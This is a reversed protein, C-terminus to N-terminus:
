SSSSQSALRQLHPCVHMLPLSHVALVHSGPFCRSNDRPLALLDLCSDHHLPRLCAGAPARCRTLVHNTLACCPQQLRAPVCRNRMLVSTLVWSSAVIISGPYLKEDEPTELKLAACWHSSSCVSSGRCRLVGLCAGSAFSVVRDNWEALSVRVTQLALAHDTWSPLSSIHRCHPSSLSQPSALASIIQWSQSSVRYAIIIAPVYSFLRCEHSSYTSLRHTIVVIRTSLGHHHHYHRHRHHRRRRRHRHHHHHHHLRDLRCAVCVCTSTHLLPGHPKACCPPSRTSRM